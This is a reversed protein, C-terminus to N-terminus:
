MYYVANDTPFIATEMKRQTCATRDNSAFAECCEALAIFESTPQAMSAMSATKM